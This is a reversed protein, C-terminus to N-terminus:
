ESLSDSKWPPWSLRIRLWNRFPSPIRIVFSLLDCCFVMISTRFILRCYGAMFTFFFFFPAQNMRENFFPTFFLCLYLIPKQQVIWIYKQRKRQKYFNNKNSLPWKGSYGISLFHTKLQTFDKSRFLTSTEKKILWIALMFGEVEHEEGSGIWLM